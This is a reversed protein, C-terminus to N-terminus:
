RCVQDRHTEKVLRLDTLDIEAFSYPWYEYSLLHAIVPCLSTPELASNGERRLSGSYELRDGYGNAVLLILGPRGTAPELSFSVADKPPKPVDQTDLKQAPPDTLVAGAVRGMQASSAASGSGRETVRWHGDADFQVTVEQGPALTLTADTPPISDSPGTALLGIFSLLAFM